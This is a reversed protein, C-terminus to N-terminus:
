TILCTSVRIQRILWVDASIMTELFNGSWAKRLNSAM